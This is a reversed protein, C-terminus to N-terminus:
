KVEICVAKSGAFASVGGLDKVAITGQEICSDKSNFGEVKQLSPASGWFVSILLVWM